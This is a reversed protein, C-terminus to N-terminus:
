LGMVRLRKDYIDETIHSHTFLWNLEEVIEQNVNAEIEKLSTARNEASVKEIYENDVGKVGTAFDVGMYHSSKQLRQLTGDIGNITTKM